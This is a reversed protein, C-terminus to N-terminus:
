SAKKTPTFISGCKPCIVNETDARQIENPPIEYDCYICTTKISELIRRVDPKRHSPMSFFPPLWAFYLPANPHRAGGKSAGLM